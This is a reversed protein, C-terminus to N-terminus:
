FLENLFEGNKKNKQYLLKYGNKLSEYLPKKFFVSTQLEDETLCLLDVNEINNIYLLNRPYKIRDIFNLYKFIDAVIIIDIDSNKNVKSSKVRSGHLIILKPSYLKLIRSIRKYYIRQIM